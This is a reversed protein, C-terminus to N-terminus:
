LDAKTQNCTQAPPRNAEPMRMCVDKCPISHAQDPQVTTNRLDPKCTQSLPRTQDPKSTQNEPRSQDPKCTQNVPRTQLDPSFDTEEPLPMCVDKCLILHAQTPYPTQLDPKTQNVPRSQDPQLDPSSDTAELCDCASM